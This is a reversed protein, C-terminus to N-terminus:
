KTIKLKKASSWASYFKTGSVTKYTRMRVYYVKGKSLGSITKTLVSNGAVTVAKNNKAFTSSTSYQIQYGSGVTNRKWTVKMKLGKVNQVKSIATKSPNIKVVVTKTAAKYIGQAGVKITITAKGVYKAKVSVKGKADVTIASNNSKYSLKGTGKRTAGLYFTQKNTSYAKVINKASITNAIQNVTVTITKTVANYNTTEAVKMTIKATGAYNAKITVKGSNNVTVSSNNSSYTITGNLAKAGISFSQEKTGANKTFNKATITNNKKNITFTKTVEGCYNGVGTIIAKGTGANINDSYKVTYNKKEKLTNGEYKVTVTPSKEKGDYTYSTNSLTIECDAKSLDTFEGTSVFKFGQEEAYKQAYSNTLGYITFVDHDVGGFVQNDDIYNVSGPLVIKTLADCGNFCYIPIEKVGDPITIEILSTCYSFAYGEIIELDKPLEISTLSKCGEFASQSISTVTKPLSVETLSTCDSFLYKEIKSIGEPITVHNLSSCRDFANKGIKKLTDPLDINTLAECEGFAFDDIETVGSPIAVNKLSSCDRFANVGIVKLNKPFGINMLSSCDSFALSTITTIGDPIEVNTLATCGRFAGDKITKLSKPLNLEALAEGFRFAGEGIVTVGEPIVLNTLNYCKSFSCDGIETVGEPIVVSTLGCGFFVYEELVTIGKPINVSALQSCDEFAKKGLKTVSDPLNISKLAYCSDFASEGITLVGEPLKVSTLATCKSFAFDDIVTVGDPLEVSIISSCDEFAANGIKVVKYGKITAPVVISTETGNYGVIQVEKNKENCIDFVFGNVDIENGATGLSTFEIQHSAAYVQAYSGSYGYIMSLSAGEFANGRIVKVSEPIEISVLSTCGSFAGSKITALTDPLKVTKLALCEEFSYNDILKVGVPIEISTLARCSQFAYSGISTLEKSLQIDTLFRCYAFAYEGITKVGEPIKIATRQCGAFAYSGITMLSSPLQFTTVLPCNTFAYSGIATVGEPIEVEQLAECNSFVKERITKLNKSLKVSKLAYCYEFASAGIETVQDPIVISTLAQCFGFASEGISTLSEPLTISVLDYDEHFANDAIGVVTYGDIASPIVVSSSEGKYGTITAKNNAVTYTFEGAQATVAVASSSFANGSFQNTEDEEKLGEADEEVGEAMIEASDSDFATWNEEEKGLEAAWVGISMTMCLCFTLLLAYVKKLKKRM